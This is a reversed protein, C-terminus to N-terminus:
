SRPRAPSLSKFNRNSNLSSVALVPRVLRDFETEYKIQMIEFSNVKWDCPCKLSNFYSTTKMSSKCKRLCSIKSYLSMFYNTCIFHLSEPAAKRSDAQSFPEHNARYFPVKRASSTSIMYDCGNLLMQSFKWFQKNSWQAYEM